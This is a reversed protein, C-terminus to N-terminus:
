RAIVLVLVDAEVPRLLLQRDGKDNVSIQLAVNFFYVVPLWLRCSAAGSLVLSVRWRPEAVHHDASNISVCFSWNEIAARVTNFCEEFTRRQTVSSFFEIFWVRAVTTGM